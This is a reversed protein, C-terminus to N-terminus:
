EVDRFLEREMEKPCLDAWSMAGGDPTSAIASGQELVGAMLQRAHPQIWMRPWAFERAAKDGNHHIMVPVRDLCLNTYLPVDAWSVDGESNTNSMPAETLRIDKPLTGSVRSPCDFLGNRDKVQDKINANFVIYRADEEANVTQQGLESWYDLGMGFEDPKGAKPEMPEHTFSPNLQDDILTGEIWTPKQKGKSRSYSLHRRHMVERQFEQEGLMTNFISQDSGHYMFDSGHSGNDWEAQDKIAEVKEWARRFMQRMDKVPGMIYGSNLYRQRNSTYKNRGMVTDTNAGYLDEPLPSEPIPYCAVTHLQNPACRKGAGFIITQEIGESDFAKGLRQSLRRNAHENISYYRSVLTEKRLQFWIDAQLHAQINRADDYLNFSGYADMMLVLDNDASPDQAELWELVGSVKAVHSGGGLLYGKDFTQNWAILTPTPYGLVFSTLLTKCLNIERNSAPLLVHLKNTREGLSVASDNADELHVIINANTSRWLGHHSLGILGFALIFLTGLGLVLQRTRGNSRLIM